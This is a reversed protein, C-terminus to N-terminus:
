PLLVVKVAGAQRDAAVKYAHAADDLPFRHTILTECIEPQTALLAAAQDVDRVGKTGHHCGCYALSMQVRAERLFALMPLPISGGYLGLVILTGTPNLMGIADELGSKNGSAEVVIDYTGSAAHAGLKEGREMQHSHRASLGVACGVDTAAAVSLLGIAGAGVIGVRQDPQAQALHIGHMAVAMPEVLSADEVALGDPLEVLNREPVALADAMGGDRMMGLPNTLATPCMNYTGDACQECSGCGFVGEVAVTRGDATTGALEHGLTATCKMNIYEFDSGCISASRISVIEGDDPNPDPVDVVQIAEDRFRVARM